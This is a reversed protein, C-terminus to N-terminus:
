KNIRGIANQQLVADLLAKSVPALEIGCRTVFESIQDRPVVELEVYEKKPLKEFTSMVQAKSFDTRLLIGVDSVHSEDDYVIAFPAPRRTMVDAPIGIEESLETLAQDSLSISGNPEATSGDIGGSPVLEWLGADQEVHGSRRGFVIGDSCCLLGTIALPQVRLMDFLNPDRRQAIFLKYEALWGSIRGSPEAAEISFLRGNSLSEGGRQLESAWIEEV